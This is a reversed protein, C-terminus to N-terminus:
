YRHIKIKSLGADCRIFIKQLSAEFGPSRYVGDKVRVLDDLNKANLAGDLRIECGSSAPVEIAVSAVGSEINVDTQTMLDGLRIDMDAVGTSIKLKKVKYISLDFDAKGAGVGLDINWIPKANLSITVENELKGRRLRVNNNEMKFTIEATNTVRNNHINAVFGAVSSQTDAEFLKDSEGNLKFKGAGGEFNLTAERLSSEMNYEYHGNKMKIKETSSDESDYDRDNRKQKRGERKRDGFDWEDEDDDHDWDFNWNNGHRDFARDTRHTIGGLVALAILIGAVGGGIGGRERNSILLSLGALILLVPWFRAVEQWDIQMLGMTRLLWFIGVILLIGGWFISNSRKM